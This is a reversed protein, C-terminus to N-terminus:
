LAGALGAARLVDGADQVIHFPRQTNMRLYEEVITDVQRAQAETEYRGAAVFPKSRRLLCNVRLVGAKDQRKRLETCLARMACAEPGRYMREYCAALGLPSDTVVYDVKGYLCSERRLQKALIYIDDWEGIKDGRWAWQKVYETVLECSLGAHKMRSFVEAATTSKGCGSGAYLNILVTQRAPAPLDTPNM